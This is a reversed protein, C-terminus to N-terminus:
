ESLYERTAGGGAASQHYEAGAGHEATIATKTAGAAEMADQAAQIQRALADEYDSALGCARGGVGAGILNDAVSMARQALLRAIEAECDTIVRDLMSLTQGYTMETAVSM